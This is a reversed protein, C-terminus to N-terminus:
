RGEPWAIPEPVVLEPDTAVARLDAADVMWLARAQAVSDAEVGVRAFTGYRGHDRWERVSLWYTRVGGSETWSELTLTWGAASGAVECRPPNANACYAQDADFSRRDATSVYMASTYLQQDGSESPIAYLAHWDTAYRWRQTPLPTSRTWDSPYIDGVALEVGSVHQRTITDLRDVIRQYGADVDPGSDTAAPPTETTSESDLPGLLGVALTSAVVAAAGTVAYTTYRAQRRLRGRRLIRDLDSSPATSAREIEQHLRERLTSEDMTTRGM